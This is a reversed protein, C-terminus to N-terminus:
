DEELLAGPKADVFRRATDFNHGARLFAQLQKHRKDPDANHEAYPGIRRKRAFNQAAAWANEKADDMAGASDQESIGAFHLDQGLRKSGHGKRISARAKAEALAADDVYGLRVFERALDEPTAAREGEWGREYIKRSLYRVLKAESTAYREVYRLALARLKM